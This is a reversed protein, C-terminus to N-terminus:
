SADTNGGDQAASRPKRRRRRRRKKRVPREDEPAATASPNEQYETWWDAVEQEVEGGAARLVLLDYAARFRPHRVMRAANSSVRNDFRDQMMVMDRIPYMIRKPITVHAQQARVVEDCADLLVGRRKEGDDVRAQAAERIPGWLFVALLFMITVPRNERVRVDTNAMAADLMARQTDGDPGMLGSACSPFLHRFLDYHQLLEYTREAHGALFLKITEDFLRAPPVDRLLAGLEAMPAESAADVTFGLKGAFRVARLMRVPDERYRTVPDGIMRMVRDRVDQAGGTYDWISFDAINYYLSNATFDRRWVDEGISGYVNDRLIRGRDDTKNDDDRAQESDHSARFTAVEIIERGFHVHALRFRRGILRCNRFLQRVDEPSADTAVDFDKPHLGLMLDRVGGGVLFAQYGSNHLRYLVKLAPEAIDARSVNHEPRPIIVPPTSQGDQSM